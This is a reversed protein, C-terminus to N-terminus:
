HTGIGTKTFDEGAFLLPVGAVAAIAYTLCDGFNLAAPHRGKGFRLFADVAADIHEPGMPILEAGAERLFENLQPRADRRMRSSLVIATEVFTPSGVGVSQASGIQDLIGDYGPEELMAALIASSDLILSDAVSTAKPAM